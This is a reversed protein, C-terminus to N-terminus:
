FNCVMSWALVDTDTDGIHMSYASYVTYTRYLLKICILKKISYVNASLHSHLMQGRCLETLCVQLRLRQLATSDATCKSGGLIALLITVIPKSLIEFPKKHKLIDVTILSGSVPM